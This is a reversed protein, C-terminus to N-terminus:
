PATVLWCKDKHAQRHDEPQDSGVDAVTAGLGFVSFETIIDGLTCGAGCHSVGIATTVYGPRAPPDGHEIQWRRTQPSCSRPV